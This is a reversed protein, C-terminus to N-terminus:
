AFRILVNGVAAKFNLCSGAKKLQQKSIEYSVAISVVVLSWILRSQTQRHHWPTIAVARLYCLLRGNALGQQCVTLLWGM